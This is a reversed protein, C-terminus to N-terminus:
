SKFFNTFRIKIIVNSSFIKITKQMQKRIHFIIFSHQRFFSILDITKIIFSLKSYDWRNIKLLFILLVKKYLKPNDPIYSFLHIM